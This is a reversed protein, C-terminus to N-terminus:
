GVAGFLGLDGAYTGALGAVPGRGRQQRALGYQGCLKNRVQEGLLQKPAIEYALRARILELQMRRLLAVVAPRLAANPMAALRQEATDELLTLAAHLAELNETQTIAQQWALEIGASEPLQGSLAADLVAVLM